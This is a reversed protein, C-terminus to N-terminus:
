WFLLYSPSLCSAMLSSNEKLYGMALISLTGSCYPANKLCGFGSHQSRWQMMFVLHKQFLIAHDLQLRLETASHEGQTFDM